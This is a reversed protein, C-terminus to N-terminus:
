KNGYYFFKEIAVDNSKFNGSRPSTHTEKKVEHHEPAAQVEVQAAQVPEPAHQIVVTQKQEQQMKVLLSEYSDLRQAMKNIETVFQDAFSQLIVKIQAEDMGPHVAKEVKEEDKAKVGQNQAVFVRSIEDDSDYVGVINGAQFAADERGTALGHQKLTSALANMKQLKTVDMREGVM